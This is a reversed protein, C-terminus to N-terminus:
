GRSSEDVVISGVVISGVVISSAVISGVVITSLRHAALRTSYSVAEVTMRAHLGHLPRLSTDIAVAPERAVRAGIWSYTPPLVRASPSPLRATPFKMRSASKNQEQVDGILLLNTARLFYRRTKTIATERAPAVPM